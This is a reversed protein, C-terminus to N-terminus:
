TVSGESNIHDLWRDFDNRPMKLHKKFIDQDHTFALLNKLALYSTVAYRFAIQCTSLVSDHKPNYDPYETKFRKPCLLDDPIDKMTLSYLSHLSKISDCLKEAVYDLPPGTRTETHTYGLPGNPPSTDPIDM